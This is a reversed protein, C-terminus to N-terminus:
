DIVRDARLLMSQPVAIGLARANGRNIALEFKVPQEVPLDAPRAGKLIKDIYTAAQRYIGATNPGYSILGGLDPFTDAIGTTISPIRHKKALEAVKRTALLPQIAVAGAREKAMSEFAADFDEAGRVPVPQIRVGASAAASQIEELFSRGFASAPDMLVAVRSLGPQLEKLLELLKPGLEVAVTTIGTVNGGPRSLSAILGMAVPNGAPAMIIPITRTADKAAQVAPTPTAVIVDVKMAVLERASSALRGARVAVDDVERWEISVNKGEIYGHDRLGHRLGDRIAQTTKGLTLVGIKRAQAPQAHSVLPAAILVALLGLANRRTKM